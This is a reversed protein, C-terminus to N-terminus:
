RSSFVEQCKQVQGLVRDIRDNLIKISKEPLSPLVDRVSSITTREFVNQLENGVGNERLQQLAKITPRRFICLNDLLLGHYAEYKKLLRYGHLLGSENDLFVLLDSDIQKALNHAPAAMIDANWQFNYLNNVVRDLNAILYDFVILDSWQALEIFRSLAKESLETPILVTQASSANKSPMLRELLNRQPKPLDLDLSINHIDMKNLHRELPQFPKPIGASELDPLWKTLVVPKFSKWQANQIDNTASQWTHSRLDIVSAASPALNSLNLLQGLFFSFLEGQIQDTNQRYRACAKKGDQFVVMRNQMRGCGIELKTVAATAVYENWDDTQQKSFGQPLSKEIKESWYIDDDVIGHPDGDQVNEQQVFEVSAYKDDNVPSLIKDTLFPKSIRVEPSKRFLGDTTRQVTFEKISGDSADLKKVTMTNTGKNNDLHFANKFVTEASLKEDTVFSVAYSDKDNRKKNKQIDYITPFHIDPIDNHHHLSSIPRNSLTNNTQKIPYGTFVRAGFGFMPMLVGLILGLSFAAMVSLICARRQFARRRLMATSLSDTDQDKDGCEISRKDYM